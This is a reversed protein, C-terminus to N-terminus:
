GGGRPTLGAERLLADVLDDLPEPTFGLDERTRENELPALRRLHLVLERPLVAQRLFSQAPLLPALIGLEEVLLDPIRRRPPPVGSREALLAYYDDLRLSRGTLFYRRGGRGRELAAVVGGGVDREGSVALWVDDLFRYPLEQRLYLRTL